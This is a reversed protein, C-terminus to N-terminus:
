TRIGKRYVKDNKSNEKLLSFQNTVYNYIQNCLGKQLKSKIGYKEM